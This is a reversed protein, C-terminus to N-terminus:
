FIIQGRVRAGDPFSGFASERNVYINGNVTFPGCFYLKHVNRIFLNGNIKAGCPLTYKNMNQIYLNGNIKVGNALIPSSPANEVVIDGSLTQQPLDKAPVSLEKVIQPKSVGITKIKPKINTKEDAKLPLSTKFSRQVVKRNNNSESKSVMSVNDGRNAVHNNCCRNCRVFDAILSVFLIIIIILLTLNIMGIIDISKLWNWIARCIRCIFRWIAKIVRWPFLLIKKIWQMFGKKRTTRTAKRIKQTKNQTKKM